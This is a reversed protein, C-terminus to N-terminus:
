PNLEVTTEWAMTNDLTECLGVADVTAKVQKRLPYTRNSVAGCIGCTPQDHAM